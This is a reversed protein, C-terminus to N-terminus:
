HQSHNITTIRFLEGTMPFIFQGLLIGGVFNAHNLLQQMYVKFQKAQIARINLPYNFLKRIIIQM